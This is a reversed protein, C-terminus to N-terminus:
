QNRVRISVFSRLVLFVWNRPFGLIGVSLVKAENQSTRPLTTAARYCFRLDQPAVTSDTPVGIGLPDSEVVHVEHPSDLVV